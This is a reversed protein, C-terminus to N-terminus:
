SGIDGYLGVRLEAEKPSVATAVYVRDGAVIPSSHALGPIPTRWRVNEGTEVNWSTALEQSSDVGSAAPGRYQPWDAHAIRTLSVVSLLAASFVLNTNMPLNRSIIANRDSGSGM